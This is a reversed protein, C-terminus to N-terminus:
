NVSNEILEDYKTAKPPPENNTRQAWWIPELQEWQLKLVHIRAKRVELHGRVARQCTIVVAMLIFLKPKYNGNFRYRKIVNMLRSVGNSSQFFTRIINAGKHKMKLRHYPLYNMIAKSIIDVARIKKKEYKQRYHNRWATQVISACRNQQIM